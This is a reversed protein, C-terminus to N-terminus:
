YLVELEVYNQRKFQYYLMIINCPMFVSKKHLKGKGQCLQMHIQIKTNLQLEMKLEMEMKIQIGIQMAMQTPCRTFPSPAPLPCLTCYCLDFRVSFIAVREGLRHPRSHQPSQLSHTTHLFPPYPLPPQVHVHMSPRVTPYIFRVCFIRLSM